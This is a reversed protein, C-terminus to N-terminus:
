VMADSDNKSNNQNQRLINKIWCISSSGYCSCLTPSISCNSVLTNFLFYLQQCNDPRGKTGRSDTRRYDAKAKQSSFFSLIKKRIDSIIHFSTTRFLQFGALFYWSNSSPLVLWSNSTCQAMLDKQVMGLLCAAFDNVCNCLTKLCFHYETIQSGSMKRFELLESAYFGKLNTFDGMWYRGLTSIPGRVEGKKRM